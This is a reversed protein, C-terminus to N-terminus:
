CTHSIACLVVSCAMFVPVEVEALGPLNFILVNGQRKARFIWMAKDLLAKKSSINETRSINQEACVSFVDPYFDALRRKWFAGVGGPTKM